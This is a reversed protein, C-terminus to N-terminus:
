DARDDVLYGIRDSGASKVSRCDASGFQECFIKGTTLTVPGALTEAIGDVITSMPVLMVSSRRRMSRYDHWRQAIDWGTCGTAAIRPDCVSEGAIPLQPGEGSELVILKGIREFYCYVWNRFDTHPVCHEPNQQHCPDPHLLADIQPVLTQPSNLFEILKAFRVKRDTSDPDM